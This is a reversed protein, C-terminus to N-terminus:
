SGVRRLGGRARRAAGSPRIRCAHRLMGGGVLGPLLLSGPRAGGCIRAPRQQTGRRLGPGAVGHGRCAGATILM